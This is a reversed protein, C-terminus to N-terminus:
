AELCVSNRRIASSSEAFKDQVGYFASQWDFADM